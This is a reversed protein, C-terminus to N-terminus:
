ATVRIQETPKILECWEGGGPSAEAARPSTGPCLDYDVDPLHAVCVHEDQQYGM